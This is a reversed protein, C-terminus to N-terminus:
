LRAASSRMPRMRAAQPLDEIQQYLRRRLGPEDLLGQLLKGSADREDDSIWNHRERRIAVASRAALGM